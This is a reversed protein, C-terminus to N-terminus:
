LCGDGYDDDSCLGDRISPLHLLRRGARAMRNSLDRRFDDACRKHVEVGEVMESAEQEGFSRFCHKCSRLQIM